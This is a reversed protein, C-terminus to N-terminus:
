LFPFNTLTECTTGIHYIFNVSFTFYLFGSMAVCVSLLPFIPLAPALALQLLVTM